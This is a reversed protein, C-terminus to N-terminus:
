FVAGSKRAFYQPYQNAAATAAGILCGVGSHPDSRSQIPSRKNGWILATMAYHPHHELVSVKLISSQQEKPLWPHLAGRRWIASHRGRGAELVLVKDALHLIEDLSHSAMASRRKDPSLCGEEGNLVRYKVCPSPACAALRM